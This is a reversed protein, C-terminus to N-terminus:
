VTQCIIQQTSELLEVLIAPTQMLPTVEPVSLLHIGLLGMSQTNLPIQVKQKIIKLYVLFVEATNDM